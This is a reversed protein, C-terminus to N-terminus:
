VAKRPGPQYQTAQPHHAATGISLLARGDGLSLQTFSASHNLIFLPFNSQSITQQEMVKGNDFAGFGFSTQEFM